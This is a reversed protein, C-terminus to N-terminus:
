SGEARCAYHVTRTGLLFTAVTSGASICNIQAERSQDHCIAVSTIGGLLAIGLGIFFDPVSIQSESYALGGAPCTTEEADSIRVLGGVTFWQRDTYEKSPQVGQVQVRTTFCGAVLIQSAVVILLVLGKM